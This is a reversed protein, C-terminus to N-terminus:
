RPKLRQTADTFLTDYQSRARITLFTQYTERFGPNGLGEQARGLYYYVPPLLHYTPLDDLFLAAAEGRRNLCIQFENGAQAFMGLNLLAQGMYFHNLWLDANKQADEYLRVAERAKGRQMQIKGELLKALAQPDPELRAAFASALSRVKTEQGLQLYVGAATFLVGDDKSLSGAREITAAAAASKGTAIEIEALRVLKAAAGDLNKDAMDATLGAELAAAADTLRGEYAAVDALGVAATSAGIASLQALNRYTEIARDTQGRALQAVAIPTYAAEFSPNATMATRAEREATEFDGAYMAYLAVNVRQNISKPTISVARQGMELAGKMNRSYFLSLALNAYGAMDSPFLRVLENLQEAARKPDRIALYYGGQTRYKERDTMRDVHQLAIKYYREAEARHGLNAHMAAIGAYARGMNPDQQVCQLYAGIAEAWKGKLQLEQAIAYSHAAELSAATFTEAAVIQVAEPTRDGLATRLRSALAGIKKLVESKDAAEIQTSIKQESTASDIAKLGLKYGHQTSAVYGSVVVPIGERVAVLRAVSEDLVTIGPQTRAAIRHAEGRDFTVIFPAGELSLTLAPEITENFVSEGTTNAFDAVLLMVPKLAVGPPPTSRLRWGLAAAAILVVAGVGALLYKYPL